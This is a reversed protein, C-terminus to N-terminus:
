RRREWLEIGVGIALTALGPLAVCLLWFDVWRDGTIM